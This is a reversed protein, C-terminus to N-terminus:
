LWDKLARADFVRENDGVLSHLIEAPAIPPQFVNTYTGALKPQSTLLKFHSGLRILLIISAASAL